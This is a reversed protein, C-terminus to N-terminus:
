VWLIRTHTDKSIKEETLKGNKSITITQLQMNDSCELHTLELNNSLDLNELSNKCCVLFRLKLNKTLDLSKLKNENCCLVELELNNLTNLKKLSNYNVSLKILNTNESLDIDTLFNSNVDLSYLIKNKSVDLSELQNNTCCLIELNVNNSVNIEELLNNSCSLWTLNLSGEVNIRKLRNHSCFIKKLNVLLHFNEPFSKLYKYSFDLEKISTIWDVQEQLDWSKINIGITDFLEIIDQYDSQKKDTKESILKKIFSPQTLNSNKSVYIIEYDKESIFTSMGINECVTFKGDEMFGQYPLNEFFVKGKKFNNSFNVVNNLLIIGKVLKNM